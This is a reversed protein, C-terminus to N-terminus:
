RTRGGAGNAYLSSTFRYTPYATTPLLHVFRCFCCRSFPLLKAWPLSSDEQIVKAFVPRDVEGALLGVDGAARCVVSAIGFGLKCGGPFFGFLVPQVQEFGGGVLARM